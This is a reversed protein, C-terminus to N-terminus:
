IFDFFPLIQFFLQQFNQSLVFEIICRLVLFYHFYLSFLLVDQLFLWLFLLSFTTFLRFLLLFLLFVCLSAFLFICIFFLLFLCLFLFHLFSLFHFLPFAFSPFYLLLKFIDAKVRLYISGGISLSAPPSLLSAKHISTTPFPTQPLSATGISGCALVM